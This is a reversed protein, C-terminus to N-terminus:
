GSGDIRDHFDSRNNWMGVGSAMGIPLWLVILGYAGTLYAWPILLCCGAVSFTAGWWRVRATSACLLWFGVVGIISGIWHAAYLVTGDLSLM